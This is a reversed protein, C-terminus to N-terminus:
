YDIDFRHEFVHQLFTTFMNYFHILVHLWFCVFFRYVFRHLFLHSLQGFGFVFSLNEQLGTDEQDVLGGRTGGTGWQTWGLAGGPGEWSIGTYVNNGLRREM